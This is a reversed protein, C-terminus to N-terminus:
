RPKGGRNRDTAAARWGVGADVGLAGLGCESAAEATQPRALIGGHLCAQNGIRGVGRREGAPEFGALAQADTAALIAAHDEVMWRYRARVGLDVMVPRTPSQM